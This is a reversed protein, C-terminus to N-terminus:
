SLGEKIWCQISMAEQLPYCPRFIFGFMGSIINILENIGLLALIITSVFLKPHKEYFDYLERPKNEPDNNKLLPWFYKFFLYGIALYVFIVLM